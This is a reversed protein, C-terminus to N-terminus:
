RGGMKLWNFCKKNAFESTYQINIETAEKIDSKTEFNSLHLKVRTNKKM